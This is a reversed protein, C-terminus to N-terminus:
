NLRLVTKFKVKTMPMYGVASDIMAMPIRMSDQSSGIRELRCDRGNNYMGTSQGQTAPSTRMTKEHLSKSHHNSLRFFMRQKLPFRSTLDTFKSRSTQHKICSFIDTNRSLVLHLKSGLLVILWCVTIQSLQSLLM